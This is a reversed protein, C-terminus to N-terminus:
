KYVYICTATHWWTNFLLLLCAATKILVCADLCEIIHRSILTFGQFYIHFNCAATTNLNVKIWEYIIIYSILHFPKLFKLLFANVTNSHLLHIETNTSVHVAKANIMRKKKFGVLCTKRNTLGPMWIVYQLWIVQINYCM